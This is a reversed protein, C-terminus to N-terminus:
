YKGGKAAAAGSRPARALLNAPAGKKTKPPRFVYALDNFIFKNIDNIKRLKYSSVSLSQTNHLHSILFSLGPQGPQWFPGHPLTLM